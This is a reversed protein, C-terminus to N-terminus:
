SRAKSKRKKPQPKVAQKRAELVKRRLTLPQLAQLKRTACDRRNQADQITHGLGGPRQRLAPLLEGLEMIWATVEAIDHALSELETKSIEGGQHVLRGKASFKVVHPNTAFHTPAVWMGHAVLNRKGLLCERIYVAVKAFQEALVPRTQNLLTGLVDLKGQLQMQSTTSRGLDNRVRAAQWICAEIMAEMFSWQAIVRGIPLAFEDKVLTLIFDAAFNQGAILTM